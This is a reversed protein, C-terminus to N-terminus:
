SFAARKMELAEIIEHNLPRGLFRAAERLGTPSTVNIEILQGGIVDIGVFFLDADKLDARMAACIALDRESLESSFATGGADLNNLEKGEAHVRLISGIPEGDLLLIRKDGVSAEPVYAQAVVWHSGGHTSVKLLQDMNPDGERVVFIGRGGHGDVPKVIMRGGVQGLFTLLSDLQSTVLTAPSYESYRQAALKENWVLLSEPNNVVLTERSVRELMICAYSYRRDFPPDTRIFVVDMEALAKWESSVVRYYSDTQDRVKIEELFGFVRGGRMELSGHHVSFVCHGRDVAALMLFFTTDKYPKIHEIPDM